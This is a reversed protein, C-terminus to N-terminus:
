ARMMLERFTLTSTIVTAVVGVVLIAADCFFMENEVDGNQNPEGSSSRGMKNHQNSLQIAFLPPLVFGVISVCFCGIFSV